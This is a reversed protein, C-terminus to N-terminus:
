PNEYRTLVTGGNVREQIKKRKKYIFIIYINEIAKRLCASRQLREGVIFSNSTHKRHDVQVKADYVKHSHDFSYDIREITIKRFDSQQGTAESSESDTNGHLMCLGIEVFLCKASSRTGDLLM